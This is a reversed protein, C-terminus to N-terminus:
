NEIDSYVDDDDEFKKQLLEVEASLGLSNDLKNGSQPIECLSM